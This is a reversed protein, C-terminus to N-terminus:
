PIKSVACIQFNCSPFSQSLKSGDRVTAEYVNYTHSKTFTLEFYDIQLPHWLGQIALLTAKELSHFFLELNSKNLTMKIITWDGPPIPPLEAALETYTTNEFNSLVGPDVEIYKVVQLGKDLIRIWGTDESDNVVADLIEFDPKM